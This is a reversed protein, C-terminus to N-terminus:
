KNLLEYLVHKNTKIHIKYNINNYKGGCICKLKSQEYKDKFKKYIIEKNNNFYDKKYNTLNNINKKRYEQNYLRINNINDIRWQKKFNKIKDLNYQIIAQKIFDNEKYSKFFNLKKFKINHLDQIEM